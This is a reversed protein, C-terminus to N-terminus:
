MNLIHSVDCLHCFFNHSADCLFIRHRLGCHYMDSKKHSGDCIEKKLIVRHGHPAFEWFIIELSPFLFQLFCDFHLFVVGIGTIKIERYDRQM